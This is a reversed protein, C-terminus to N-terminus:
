LQPNTEIVEINVKKDQSEVDSYVVAGIGNNLASMNFTTGEGLSTRPIPSVIKDIRQGSSNLKDFAVWTSGSLTKLKAGGTITEGNLLYDINSIGGLNAGPVVEWNGNATFQNSKCTVSGGPVGNFAIFYNGNIKAASINDIEGTAVINQCRNIKGTYRPAAPNSVDYLLVNNGGNGMNLSKGIPYSKNWNQGAIVVTNEVRRLDGPHNYGGAPHTNKLIDCWIVKGNTGRKNVEAVFVMGGESNDVNQSWTGMYYEKGNADELRVMDQLHQWRLCKGFGETFPVPNSICHFDLPFGNTNFSIKRLKGEFQISSVTQSFSTNYILLCLTVLLLNLNKKM